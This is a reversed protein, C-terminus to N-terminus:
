QVYIVGRVIEWDGCEYVRAVDGTVSAYIRACMMDRARQNLFDIIADTEPDHIM